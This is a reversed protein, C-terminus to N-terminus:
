RGEGELDEVQKGRRERERKVLRCRKYQERSVVSQIRKLRMGLARRQLGIRGFLRDWDAGPCSAPRWHHNFVDPEKRLEVWNGRKVGARHALAVAEVCGIAIWKSNPIGALRAPEPARDDSPAM